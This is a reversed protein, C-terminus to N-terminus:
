DSPQILCGNGSLGIAVGSVVSPLYYITRFIEIGRLKQNCLLALILSGFLNLPVGFCSYIATVKLSSWFVSDNFMRLYNDLGIWRPPNVLDWKMFALVFSAVIPRLYVSLIRNDLLHMFGGM